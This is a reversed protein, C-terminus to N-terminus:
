DQKRANLQVDITGNSPVFPTVLNMEIIQPMSPLPSNQFPVGTTSPWPNTGGTIGIDTGDSGANIAPSGAQLHYDDGDDYLGDQDLVFLPDTNELVNTASTNVGYVPNSLDLNASSTFICNELQVGDVYQMSGGGNSNIQYNNFICNNIINNLSFYYTGSSMVSGGTNSTFLCNSFTSSILRSLTSFFICNNVIFDTGVAQRQDVPNSISGSTGTIQGIVSHQLLWNRADTPGDSTGISVGNVYCRIIAVGEVDWADPYDTGNVTIEDDVLFGMLVTGSAITSDTPHDYDTLLINDIETPWLFQKDPKWGNGILTLPKDITIDGYSTPSGHVYLTDNPSAADIADQLDTYQGPSNGNNSVTIITAQAGIAAALMLTLTYLQKKM